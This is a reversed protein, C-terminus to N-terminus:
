WPQDVHTAHMKGAVVQQQAKYKQCSARTLVYKAAMRLMGPWYYKRALRVLTKTIGLHGAAPEDHAESLINAQEARPICVKWQDGPDTDNFDLTHLIHRYLRGDRVIYEPHAEPKKKTSGREATTGTKRTRFKAPRYRNPLFTM